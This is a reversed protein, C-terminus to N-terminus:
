FCQSQIEAEYMEKLEEESFEEYQLMDKCFDEFNQM